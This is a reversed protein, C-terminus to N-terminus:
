QTVALYAEVSSAGGITVVVPQIGAPLGQPVQYNIQMVGVLGAPVGAFSIAASIGGVTVTVPQNAPKPLNAVATGSAPSSGTPVSPSLAGAGTVYLTLTDGSKATGNPVPARNADTFIAPATAAIDLSYTVTQGNYQVTLTSGPGVPTEYPIQVNLQGPSTSYVPATVGNVTVAVGALTVPLPVSGAAQVASALGTGFISLIEGPAYAHGYDAGNAIGSISLPAAQTTVTITVMAAANAFTSNDSNYQATINNTGAALQSESITLAATATGNSGSLAAAGLSRTGLLFTVNGTPTTGNSSTVTVTLVTTQGSTLATANASINVNPVVRSSMGGNWAQFLNFVDISGLGTVPDYGVGASYGVPSNPTTCRRSCAVTVLNDGTTVDHFAQPASQALSYLKPNINGLGPATISGNQMLYQNLIAAIGAMMPTPASTGGFSFLQGNIYVDYGDHSASANMAIDPVYRPGDTPVGPGTQWTPRTFYISAGGGSASPTGEAVTDNWTTEPIYSLVSASNADNTANWYTGAGEAFETGGVGTVEPVSAPLDVSLRGDSTSQGACDAGGNDGSANFWTIGQANAQQAMARYQSAQSTSNLQECGGYSM